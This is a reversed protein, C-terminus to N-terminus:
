FQHRIGLAFGSSAQGVTGLPADNNGTADGVICQAGGCVSGGAENSIHAYSTYLNTRKSLAYTYGV